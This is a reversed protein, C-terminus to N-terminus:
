QLKRRRDKIEEALFLILCHVVFGSELALGPANADVEGSKWKQKVLHQLNCVAKWFCLIHKLSSGM